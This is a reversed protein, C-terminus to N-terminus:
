IEIIELIKSSLKWTYFKSLDLFLGLKLTYLNDEKLAFNQAESFLSRISVSFGTSAKDYTM